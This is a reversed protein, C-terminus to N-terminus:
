RNPLTPHSGFNRSRSATGAPPKACRLPRSRTGPSSRDARLTSLRPLSQAFCAFCRDASAAPFGTRSSLWRPLLRHRTGCAHAGFPPADGATPVRAASNRPRQNSLAGKPAGSGTKAPHWLFMKTITTALLARIRICRSFSIAKTTALLSAVFCDLAARLLSSQKAESAIVPPSAEARDKETERPLILLVWEGQPRRPFRSSHTYRKCCADRCQRRCSLGPWVPPLGHLAVVIRNANPSAAAIPSPADPACAAEIRSSHDLTFAGAPAAAPSPLSPRDSSWRATSARNRRASRRGCAM